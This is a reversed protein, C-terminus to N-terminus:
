WEWGFIETEVKKVKGRGPTQDLLKGVVLLHRVPWLDACLLELLVAKSRVLVEVALHCLELSLYM